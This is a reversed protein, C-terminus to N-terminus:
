INQSPFGILGFKFPLIFVKCISSHQVNHSKRLLHPLDLFSYPLLLQLSPLVQWAIAPIHGYDLVRRGVVDLQRASVKRVHLIPTALLRSITAMFGQYKCAGFGM